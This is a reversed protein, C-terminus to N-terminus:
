GFSPGVKGAVFNRILKAVAREGKAGEGETWIFLFEAEDSTIDFLKEASYIGDGKGNMNVTLSGFGDIKYGLGARKFAGSMAALGMACASTGCSIPKDPNDVEGWTSMDFKIGKKNKADTELLEALKLLRRKNM